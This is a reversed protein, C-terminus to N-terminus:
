LEVNVEGLKSKERKIINEIVDATRIEKPLESAIVKLAIGAVYDLFQDNIEQGRGFRTMEWGRYIFKEDNLPQHPTKEIVESRIIKAEERLDNQVQNCERAIENIRRELYQEIRNTNDNLLRKSKRGSAVIAIISISNLLVAVSLWVM